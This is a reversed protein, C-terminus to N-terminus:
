APGSCGCAAWFGSTNVTPQLWGSRAAARRAAPGPRVFLILVAALSDIKEKRKSRRAGGEIMAREAQVTTLREDWLDVPLSGPLAKSLREAFARAGEAKDGETGDLLLPLGIVVRVAEHEAVVGAYQLPMSWGAFDVLRGGHAAHWDTLPTQRLESM